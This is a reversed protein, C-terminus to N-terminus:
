RAVRVLPISPTAPGAQRSQIRGAGVTVISTADGLTMQNHSIVITTRGSMLRRLPVLIRETSADDLGTTPEDLILIPSDRIIARAIAIRQRQGGSLRRGRQGTREEYGAPLASIFEHADAARAAAVIERESAGPKGYAINERITGDFVLSEQLLLAINERLSGLGLERLDERDLLIEGASPDYFRLLLKAITSKGSGSPGVLALTEGPQVRFSVSSLADQTAGPYRFSVDRFQILGEARGLQRARPAEAVSPRQELLEAIREAGAAAAWVTGSLRGLRRIPSYLSSLYALFVLLGGLTLRGRSLEWTGLGIVALAGIAEILRVIPTFLGKVRASALDAQYSGESERDFREVEDAQRNYAQVLQANALSEEAAASLTGSRRRKERAAAKRLRSFQRAAAWSLPAVVLAALALEWQLVFLLTVFLAIRIVYSLAGAVGSIVFSEIVATDATVRSIVDGMPRREFFDLSLDQVHGFVDSRLSRAFRGGLKASLYDSAFSASGALVALAGSAAAIWVFPGFDRPVLVMDVMLKWMWLQAADIVPVLVILGLLVPLWRRYPRAWPWFLRVIEGVTMSPAPAVPSGSEPPPGLLRTM